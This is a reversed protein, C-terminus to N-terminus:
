PRERNSYNAVRFSGLSPDDDATLRLRLYVHEGKLKKLIAVVDDQSLNM